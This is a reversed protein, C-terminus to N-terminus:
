EVYEGRIAIVKFRIALDEIIDAAGSKDCKSTGLVEYGGRSGGLRDIFYDQMEKFFELYGENCITVERREHDIAIACDIREGSLHFLTRRLGDSVANRYQGLNEFEVIKQRTM